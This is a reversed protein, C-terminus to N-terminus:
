SSKPAFTMLVNLSTNLDAGRMALWRGLPSTFAALWRARPEGKAAIVALSAAITVDSIEDDIGLQERVAGVPDFEDDTDALLDLRMAEEAEADSSQRSTASAPHTKQAMFEVKHCPRM